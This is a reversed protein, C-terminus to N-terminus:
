RLILVTHINKFQTIELNSICMIENPPRQQFSFNLIRIFLEKLM